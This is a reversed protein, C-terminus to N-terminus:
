FPPIYSEVLNGTFNVDDGALKLQIQDIFTKLDVFNKFPKSTKEIVKGLRLTSTLLFITTNSLSFSKIEFINMKKKTTETGFSVWINRIGETKPKLKEKAKLKKKM